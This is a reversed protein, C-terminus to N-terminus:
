GLRRVAEVTLEDLTTLQLDALALVESALPYEPSPVAVAKMGAARLARLGNGSDEV